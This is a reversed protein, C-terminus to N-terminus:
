EQSPPSYPLRSLLPARYQSLTPPGEGGMILRTLGWGGWESIFLTSYELPPRFPDAAGEGEKNNNNIWQAFQKPLGAKAEQILKVVPFVTKCSRLRGSEMTVSVPFFCNGYFGKPLPPEVVLQRCNAFFVLRVQREDEVEIACTRENIKDVGIDITAHELQYDPIPIPPPAASNPHPPAPLPSPLLDRCWVPTISLQEAGRAFEGVANLFQAAGLGDCISHCFTLGIVFGNCRFQTVQIQVLPDLGDSEQPPVPLLKEYPISLADDFYNVADLTCDASAEVFWIGEGTCAIVLENQDSIHLRGALPYYPILAKSLAERMVKATAPGHKFVHLTRANCRLVPLRDVVSLELVSSPTPGSPAVLKRSMRTVSFEM